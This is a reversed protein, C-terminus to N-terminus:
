SNKGVSNVPNREAALVIRFPSLRPSTAMYPYGGKALLNRMENLTYARRFSLPADNKFLASPPALRSVITKSMWYFFYNRRLDTLVVGVRAMRYAKWLFFSVQEASLHHLVLSSVVFDFSDESFKAEFFDSQVINIEPYGAVRERALRVAHPHSDIGILTLGYQRRRAWVALSEDIDGGGCGVDLVTFAPVERSRVMSELPRILAEAGGLRRNTWEVARFAAQYEDFSLLEAPADIQEKQYLERKLWM